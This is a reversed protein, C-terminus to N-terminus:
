REDESGEEHESVGAVLHTGAVSPLRDLYLM